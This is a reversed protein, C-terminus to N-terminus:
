DLRCVKEDYYCYKKNRNDRRRNKMDRNSQYKENIYTDGTQMWGLIWAKNNQSITSNQKRM